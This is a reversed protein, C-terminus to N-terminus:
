IFNCINLLIFKGQNAQKKSSIRVTKNKKEFEDIHDFIIDYQVFYTASLFVDDKDIFLYINIKYFM